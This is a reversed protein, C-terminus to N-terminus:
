NTAHTPYVQVDTYAGKIGGAGAPWKLSVTHGHSRGRSPGSPSSVQGHLAARLALEAQALPDKGTQRSRVGVTRTLARFPLPRVGTHARAQRGAASLRCSATHPRLSTVATGPEALLLGSGRGSEESLGQM